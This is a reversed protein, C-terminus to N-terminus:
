VSRVPIPPNTSYQGEPPLKFNAPRQGVGYEQPNMLGRDVGGQVVGRVDEAKQGLRYKDQSSLQDAKIQLRQQIQNRVDQRVRDIEDPSWRRVAGLLQMLWACDLKRPKNVGQRYYMRFASAIYKDARINSYTFGKNGCNPELIHRIYPFTLYHLNVGRIVKPWVDTVIVLPYPDHIINPKKAWSHPYHFAILDGRSAGGGVFGHQNSALTEFPNFDKFLSAM